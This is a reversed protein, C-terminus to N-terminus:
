GIKDLFELVLRNFEHPSEEFPLHGVDPLMVLESGPLAQQLREASRPDVALDHEGWILLSPTRVQPIASRLRELDQGWGRLINVVNYGRGRRTLLQSYGEMTGPPIRAPNAYLRELFPRQFRRSFPLLRPVLFGAMRGAFFQIREHGLASWPNVPAALVLSRMDATIAALFLAVAGGWSSGVVAAKNLGMADMFQALRAAQAPMSCDCSRAADSIGLGAMDVAYVTYHQALAPLNYRWCFSGGLLGHVLLLPPGSGAKLYHMRQGGIDAWSSLPQEAAEAAQNNLVM